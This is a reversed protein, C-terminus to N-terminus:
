EGSRARPFLEGVFAITEEVARDKLAADDHDAGEVLVWRKRGPAAEYVERSQEPPVITDGSGAVVLVPVDLERIRSLNPFHDRLLWGIMPLRYHARAVDDLSAFPSVLVVAAPARRAAVGLAVGSGLSRGVLVIRDPDVEDRSRLYAVAALGDGVLGEETPHGSNGGYGRYDVLLVGIGAAHLARAMPARDARNGANGHFFVAAVGALDPPLWWAALDLGDDTRVVVEEAGPLVRSVAPVDGAPLYILRRQVLWMLVTPAVVLAGAVALIVRTVRM